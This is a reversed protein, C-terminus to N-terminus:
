KVDGVRVWGGLDKVIDLHARKASLALNSRVFTVFNPFILKLGRFHMLITINTFKHSCKISQICKERQWGQSFPILIVM